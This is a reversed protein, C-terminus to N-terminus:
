VVSKRDQCLGRNRVVDRTISGCFPERQGHVTVTGPADGIALGQGLEVDRLPVTLFAQLDIAAKGGLLGVIAPQVLLDHRERFFSLDSSCVDSSWDRDSRTH